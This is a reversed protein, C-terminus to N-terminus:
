EPVAFVRRLAGEAVTRRTRDSEVEYTYSGDIHQTVAVVQVEELDGDATQAELVEGLRWKQRWVPAVRRTLLRRVGAAGFRM